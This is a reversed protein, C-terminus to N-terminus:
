QISTLDFGITRFSPREEPNEKLCKHMIEYLQKSCWRPCPMRYGAKVLEAVDSNHVGPYPLAGHTVMEYLLIGFAWVDSKVSFSRHMVAEPAMWKLPFQTRSSEKYTSGSVKQALGFDSIKCILQESVLVNRAAVDRLIINCQELYVMGNCIQVAWTLLQPMATRRGPGRLYKVM